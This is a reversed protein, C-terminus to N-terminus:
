QVHSGKVLIVRIVYANVENCMCKVRYMGGRPTM